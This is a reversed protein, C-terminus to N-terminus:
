EEPLSLISRAKEPEGRAEYVSALRESAQSVFMPPVGADSSLTRHSSVLLNEAEAYRGLGALAAGEASEAVATRWHGDPLAAAFM